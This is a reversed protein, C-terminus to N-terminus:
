NFLKVTANSNFSNVKAFCTYILAQYSPSDDFSKKWKMPTNLTRLSQPYQATSNWSISSTFFRCMDVLFHKNRDHLAQPTTKYPSSKSTQKALEAMVASKSKPFRLANNKSPPKRDDTSSKDVNSGEDDDDAKPKEESEVSSEDESSSYKIDMFYGPVHQLLFPLFLPPYNANKGIVQHKSYDDHWPMIYGARFGCGHM